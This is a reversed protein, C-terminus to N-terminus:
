RICHANVDLSYDPPGNTLMVAVHNHGARLFPTIDAPPAESTVGCGNAVNVCGEERWAGGWHGVASGNVYLWMGDNGRFNVTTVGVVEDLWFNSRYFVDHGTPGVERDPLGALVEWSTDDFDADSWLAGADDEPPDTAYWLPSKLWPMVGDYNTVCTLRAEGQHPVGIATDGLDNPDGDRAFDYEGCGALALVLTM